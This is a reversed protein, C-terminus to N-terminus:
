LPDQEAWGPRPFVTPYVATGDGVRQGADTFVASRASETGIDIALYHPM